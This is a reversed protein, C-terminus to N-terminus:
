ESIPDIPIRAKGVAKIVNWLYLAIVIYYVLGFFPIGGAIGNLIQLLLPLTLVYVALTFTENFSLSIKQIACMILGALGVFLATMLKALLYYIIGFVYVFLSAWNLLPLWKIADAKTITFQKLSQFDTVQTEFESKKNVMKTKSIFVGQKYGNLISDSTQGTTDVILINDDDKSIIPMQAYVELEGNELKFDPMQKSCYNQFEGIGQILTIIPYVLWLTGLLLWALFWYKVIQGSSQKLFEPYAQLSIISDKMSKFLNM